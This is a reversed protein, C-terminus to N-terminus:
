PMIAPGQQTIIEGLSIIRIPALIDMGLALLIAMGQNM